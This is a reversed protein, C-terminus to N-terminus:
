HRRGGHWLLLLKKEGFRRRELVNPLRLAGLEGREGRANSPAHRASRQVAGVTCALALREARAHRAGRRAALFREFECKADLFCILTKHKQWLCQNSHAAIKRVIVLLFFDLLVNDM